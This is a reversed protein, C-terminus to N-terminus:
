AAPRVRRPPPADGAQGAEAGFTLTKWVLALLKRALAVNARAAGLRQELPAYRAHWTADQRAARAAIDIMTTRLERRGDAGDGAPQADGGTLGAYSALQAAGPFREIAGIAGLLVLASLRDIGPIALLRGVPEHWREGESLALLRQELERLLTAARNLAALSDRARQAEAPPLPQRAWWDPRDAGVRSRGPPTAGCRRLLQELAATAAAHQAILRHRQAALARVASTDADPAWVTPALGAAHMRALKLTDRPDHGSQFTPILNGIQPHAIAVSAVLPAIQDHFPWPSAPAGILVADSPRLNAGLWGPLDALAVAQPQLAVKGAADVGGVLARQERIDLAVFRAPSEPQKDM